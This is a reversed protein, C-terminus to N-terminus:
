SLQVDYVYIYIMLSVANAYCEYMSNIDDSLRSPAVENLFPLLM